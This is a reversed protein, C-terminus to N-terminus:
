QNASVPAWKSDATSMQILVMPQITSSEHAARECKNCSHEADCQVTASFQQMEPLMQRDGTCFSQLYLKVATKM